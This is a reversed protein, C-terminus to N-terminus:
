SVLIHLIIEDKHNVSQWSFSKVKDLSKIFREMKSKNYRNFYVPLGDMTIIRIKDYNVQNDPRLFFVVIVEYRAVRVLEKIAVEYSELHELIHRSYVVDACSDLLPIANINGYQVSINKKRAIDIFHDTIDMGLYTINAIQTKFVEYDICLGCPIDLISKYPKQAIYSAVKIRSASDGIWAAFQALINENKCNKQWWLEHPLLDSINAFLSNKLLCMFFFQRVMLM